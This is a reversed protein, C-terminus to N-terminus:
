IKKIFEITKGSIKEGKKFVFEAKLKKGRLIQPLWFKDDDWMENFPIEKEKFWRPMMEESEIPEGEWKKALFV